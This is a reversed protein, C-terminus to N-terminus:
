RYKFLGKKICGGSKPRIYEQAIVCNSIHFIREVCEDGYRENIIEFARKIIPPRSDINHCDSGLLHVQGHKLMASVLDGDRSKIVSASNVQILCGMNILTQIVSPHKRVDLYREAHAIIPSLGTSYIFKKLRKVIKESIDSYFPLELMIYKGRDIALESFMGYDISIDSFETEAGLHLSIGKPCVKLLSEYREYRKELFDEVRQNHLYFHPTLVINDVGEDKLAELMKVATDISNAGDDIDPLIHTHVDVM